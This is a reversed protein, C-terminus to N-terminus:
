IRPQSQIRQRLRIFESLICLGESQGIGIKTAQCRCKNQLRFQCVSPSHGVYGSVHTKGSKRIPPTDQLPVELGVLKGTRRTIHATIKTGGCVMTDSESTSSQGLQESSRAPARASVTTSQSISYDEEVTSSSTQGVKAHLNRQLQLVAAQSMKTPAEICLPPLAGPVTVTDGSVRLQKNFDVWKLEEVDDDDDYRIEYLDEIPDFAILTGVFTEERGFRKQFTTGVPVRAVHQSSKTFLLLHLKSQLWKGEIVFM